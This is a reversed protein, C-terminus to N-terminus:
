TRALRSALALGWPGWLVYAFRAPVAGPPPDWVLQAGLAAFALLACALSVWGLLRGGRPATGDADVALSSLLYGAVVLWWAVVALIALIESAIIPLDALDALLGLGSVLFGMAGLIAWYRLQRARHPLLHGAGMAMSGGALAVGALAFGFGILPGVGGGLHLPLLGTSVLALLGGALAVRAAPSSWGAERLPARQSSPDPDPDSSLSSDDNDM